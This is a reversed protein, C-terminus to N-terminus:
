HQGHMTVFCSKGEFFAARRGRLTTRYLLAQRSCWNTVPGCKLDGAHGAYHQRSNELRPASRGHIVMFRERATDDGLNLLHRLPSRHAPYCQLLYGATQLDTAGQDGFRNANCNFFPPEGTLTFQLITNAQRVFAARHRSSRLM